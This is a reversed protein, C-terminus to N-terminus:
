RPRVFSPPPCVLPKALWYYSLRASQAGRGLAVETGLAAGRGVVAATIAEGRPMVALRWVVADFPFYVHEIPAGPDYLASGSRLVVDELFPSLLDPEQVSLASLLSNRPQATAPVVAM